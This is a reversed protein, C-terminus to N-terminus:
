RLVQGRRPAIQLKGLEAAVFAPLLFRQPPGLFTQPNELVVPGVLTQRKENGFEQCFPAALLFRSRM